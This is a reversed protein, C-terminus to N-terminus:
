IDALVRGRQRGGLPACRAHFGRRPLRDAAGMLEATGHSHVGSWHVSAFLSWNRLRATAGSHRRPRAQFALGDATLGIRHGGPRVSHAYRLWGADLRVRASQPSVGLGAFFVPQQSIPCRTRAGRLLHATDPRRKAIRATLGTVLLICVWGSKQCRFGAWVAGIPTIEIPM